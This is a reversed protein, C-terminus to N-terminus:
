EAGTLRKIATQLAETERELPEWEVHYDKYEPEVEVGDRENLANCIASDIYWHLATMFEEVPTEKYEGTM